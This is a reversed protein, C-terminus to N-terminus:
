TFLPWGAAKKNLVFLLPLFPLASKRGKRKIKPGHRGM